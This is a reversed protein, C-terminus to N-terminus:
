TILDVLLEFHKVLYFGHDVVKLTVDVVHGMMYLGELNFTLGDVCVKSVSPLELTFNM